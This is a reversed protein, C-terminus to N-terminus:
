LVYMYGLSTEQWWIVFTNLVTQTWHLHVGMKDWMYNNGKKKDPNRWIRARGKLGKTSQWFNEQIEAKFDMRKEHAREKMPVRTNWATMLACNVWAICPKWAKLQGEQRRGVWWQVSSTPVTCYFISTSGRPTISLICHLLPTERPPISLISHFLACYEM